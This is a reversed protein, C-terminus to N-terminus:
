TSRLPEFSPTSYRSVTPGLISSHCIHGLKCVYYGVKCNCNCISSLYSCLVIVTARGWDGAKAGETSHSSNPRIVRFKDHMMRVEASPAVSDMPAMEHPQVCAIHQAAAIDLKFRLEPAPHTLAQNIVACRSLVSKVKTKM